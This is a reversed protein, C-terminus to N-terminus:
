GRGQLWPLPNITERGHHLELYLTPRPGSSGPNWEAMVGVAEGATVDSGSRVLLRDMGALVFRYDKGCDLIVVRGYSHFPAAFEVTGACPALVHAGPAAQYRIGPAPGAPTPAGFRAVLRGAVPAGRARGPPAANPPPAEPPLPPPALRPTEPRALAFQEQRRAAAAQRAAEAERAAEAKRGAEVIAAIAGELTKARAAADVAAAEAETRQSIAAQEATETAAIEQDLAQAEAAQEAKAAKLKAEAAAIKAAIANVKAEEARLAEAEREVGTAIAQLVLLGRLAQEPPAPMALLTAAPHLSLREIVPLYPAFERARRALGADAADRERALQDLQLAIQETAAEALRLRRTTAARAKKLEARQAAAATAAQAATDAAALAQQRTQEVGQLAHRAATAAAPENAGAPPIPPLPLAPPAPPAPGASLAAAALLM